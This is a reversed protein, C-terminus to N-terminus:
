AVHRWIKRRLILRLNDTTIGYEAALVAASRGATSQERIERLQEETLKANWHQEGLRPTKDAREKSVMDRMNDEHTGAWLHKPNICLPTDCSHCVFPKEPPHGHAIQYVLHTVYQTKGQWRM